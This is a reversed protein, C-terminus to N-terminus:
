ESIIPISFSFTAGKNKGESEVWIKGGHLNVIKKSIYLGLGSGETDVDWGKGYREIKGFQKFLQSKEEQSIGIGSDKVSIIYFNDEIESKITIIGGPESYKISNLLLNSIVDYLREKDIDATLYEHIQLSVRQNRLESLGQLEKVVYKILFSLDETTRNLIIKDQDLRSGDLLAKIIRELRNSGKKIDELISIVDTDLKSNHVTLLLDTFGKISILPTKLEHSTRTLLESKFINQEELDQHVQWRKLEIEIADCILTLVLKNQHSLVPNKQFLVCISSNFENQSKILRGFCGKVNYKKIFHDTKGYMTEDINFIHQISDHKESFLESLIFNKEFEESNYDFIEKDSSIVQFHTKGEKEFKRCFLVANASLLNSCTEILMEINNQIETTFKLFSVNLEYILKEYMKKESIDDYTILIGVIKGQSSYLPIRNVDFWINNENLVLPTEVHFEAIGSEVVQKERNILDEIQNNGLNGLFFDKDTKGIVNEPYEAGVMKAHNNNCGLYVLNTDKWFINEPINDMVMQLMDYSMKLAEEYKKPYFLKWFRIEPISNVLSKHNEESKKLKHEYSKLKSLNKLILITKNHNNDNYKKANIEFWLFKGRKTKFRLEDVANGIKTGKKLIKKTKRIDEPHLYNFISHGILDKSSYGLIYQYVTENIFQFEFDNNPDLICILDNINEFIIKLTEHIEIEKSFMSNEARWKHFNITFNIFNYFRTYFTVNNKYFNKYFQTM